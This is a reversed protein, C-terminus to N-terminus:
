LIMTMTITINCMCVPVVDNQQACTNVFLILTYCVNHLEGAFKCFTVSSAIAIVANVSGLISFAANPCSSLSINYSILKSQLLMQLFSM